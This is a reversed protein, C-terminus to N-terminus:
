HGSAEIARPFLINNEKHVHQHMDRELEDLSHMVARYTNCGGPPTTFGACLNRMELLADGADQHEREMVNIPGAVNMVPAGPNGALQREMERIAPFLIREEKAMHEVLEQAFTNFIHLVQPLNANKDSHRLAVRELLPALRPLEEKLYRHHTQEVHDALETLSMLAPNVNSPQHAAAGSQHSEILVAVTAPDLKKQECAEALPMKGGCCYDIGLQEFLRALEPKSAVLEGVTRNQISSVATM